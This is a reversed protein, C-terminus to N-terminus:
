QATQIIVTVDRLGGGCDLQLYVGLCLEHAKWETCYHSLQLHGDEEEHQSSVCGLRCM